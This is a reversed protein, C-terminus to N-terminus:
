KDLQGLIEITNDANQAILESLSQNEIEVVCITCFRQSCKKAIPLIAPDVLIDAGCQDCKLTQLDKVRLGVFAQKSVDKM